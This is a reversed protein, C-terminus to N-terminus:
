TVEIQHPNTNTNYSIVHNLSASQISQTSAKVTHTTTFSAKVPIVNTDSTHVVVYGEHPNPNNYYIDIYYTHGSIQTQMDITQSLSTITGYDPYSTSATIIRNNDTSSIVRDFVTIKNAIDNAIIKLQEETVNNNSQTM